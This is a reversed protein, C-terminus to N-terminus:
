MMDEILQLHRKRQYYASFAVLNLSLISFAEMFLAEDGLGMSRLAVIISYNIAFVVAGASFFYWGKSIHGGMLEALIVALFTTIFALVITAFQLKYDGLDIDTVVAYDKAFRMVVSIFALATILAVAATGLDKKGPHMGAHHMKEVIGWSIIAFGILALGAFWEKNGTINSIFLGAAIFCLMLIVKLWIKGEASRTGYLQLAKICLRLAILLIVLTVVNTAITLTNHPLPKLLLVLLILLNFGALAGGFTKEKKDFSSLIEM